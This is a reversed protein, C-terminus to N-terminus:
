AEYHPNSLRGTPSFSVTVFSLIVRDQTEIGGILAEIASKKGLM